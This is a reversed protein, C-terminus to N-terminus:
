DQTTKIYKKKQRASLLKKKQKPQLKEYKLHEGIFWNRFNNFIKKCNKVVFNHNFNEVIGYNKKPQEVM